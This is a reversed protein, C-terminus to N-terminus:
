LAQFHHEDLLVRRAALRSGARHDLVVEAKGVAEAACIERPPRDRLCFAEAGLEQDTLGNDADAAHIRVFDDVEAIAGLDGAM